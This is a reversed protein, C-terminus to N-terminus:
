RFHEEALATAGPAGRLPLLEGKVRLLETIPWCEEARESRANAEELMVLGDAIQGTRGSAEARAGSTKDRDTV